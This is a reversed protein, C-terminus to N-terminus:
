STFLPLPDRAAAPRGKTGAARGFPPTVSPVYTVSVFGEERDVPEYQAVLDAYAKRPFARLRVYPKEIALRKTNREMRDYLADPSTMPLVHAHPERGSLQALEVLSLRDARTLNPEDVCVSEASSDVAEVLACQFIRDVTSEFAPDYTSRFMWERIAGRSVIVWEPHERQFATKGSGPLGVLVVLQRM